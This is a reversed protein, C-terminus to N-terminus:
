RPTPTAAPAGTAGSPGEPSASRKPLDIKRMSTSNPFMSEDFQSGNDIKTSEVFFATQPDSEGKGGDAGADGGRGCSAADSPLPPFTYYTKWSTGKPSHFLAVGALVSAEKIREFKVQVLDNPYISLEDMKLMDDQLVEKDKLLIEDYTANEMRVDNKLQYLRIVVPRPNGKENPNINDAAYLNLTVIQIDCPKPAAAPVPTCGSASVAAVGGCALGLLAFAILKRPRPRPLLMSAM